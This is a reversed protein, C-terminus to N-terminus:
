TGDGLAPNEPTRPTTPTRTRRTLAWVLPALALAAQPLLSAADPYVGLLEIEVFRIPRLPLLGVEQLAHVGKGLLVVATVLLVVTSVDFLTKMPLRLGLRAVALVLGVLVVAGTLAGWVAARPADIALGELFIVTEFSERFVATFSIAFLATASGRGLADGMKERLDGMMKRTTNRANLWFTAHLLMAVALLAFVGEVKERNAGGVLSRGFVFCVAGALLAVMWGAHVVRAQALQKSKKLVALLAAVVVTAEFGERVLILLSFWFVSAPTGREHGVRRARDIAALLRRADDAATTSRSEISTRARTFAQEMASVASADRARLLAEVPEIEQLYAQLIARRADDWHGADISRIAQEVDDRARLLNGEDDIAPMVGRLCALEGEGHAQALADDSTTALDELSLRPPAHTCTENAHRLTFVYFAVAWRQKEDLTLFAPMATGQTGFTVANFAKYPTLAGIREPELFSAPRPTLRNATETKAGGDLGHCQACNAEYLAKGQALDPAARPSRALGAFAVVDEVMTACDRAVGDPDLGDRVRADIGDLRQLFPAGDVGLKNVSTRADSLLGRQEALEAPDHSAVAAPYDSELYELIAVVRQWEETKAVSSSAASASRVTSAVISFAVLACLALLWSKINFTTKM